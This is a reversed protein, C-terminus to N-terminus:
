KAMCGRKGNKEGMRRWTPKRWAASAEQTNMRWTPTMKRMKAHGFTRKPITWYTPLSSKCKGINEHIRWHSPVTKVKSLPWSALNVNKPNIATMKAGMNGYDGKSILFIIQTNASTSKREITDNFSQQSRIERRPTKSWRKGLQFNIKAELTTKGM